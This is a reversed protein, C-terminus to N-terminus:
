PMLWRGTVYSLDLSSSSTGLSVCCSTSLLPLFGPSRVGPETSGGMCSARALNGLARDGREPTSSM